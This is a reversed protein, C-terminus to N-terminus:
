RWKRWFMNPIVFRANSITRKLEQLDGFMRKAYNINLYCRRMAIKAWKEMDKYTLNPYNIEEGDLYNHSELWEYLPTNKYVKPTAFQYVDVDLKKAWEITSEITKVTEGPLGIIFDAHIRIGVKNAYDTLRELMKPTVGKRINKLIQPDSSEYGVHILRCGAEKMLKLTDYDMDGRSYCSWTIDLGNEIIATSLEKARKRSLTDDQIFIEKVEPFKKQISKLEKIVSNMNRTRYDAGKNITYPWLCFTCKGWPCGRGTFLDVFPYLQPSIRYNKINLHEKYVDTVFPFEDLQESSVPARPTNRIIENEKNKWILGKIDTKNINGALDLIVFDFEGVAISDVGPTRNLFDHSVISAWPGVFINYSDTLKKIKESLEIHTSLGKESIYIVTLEPNFSEVIQLVDEVSLGDAEADVLKTEYGYKELLGTCYALYIPYWHSGSITRGDWRASHIYGRYYPPNLLLVKM